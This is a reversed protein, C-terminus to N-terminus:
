FVTILFNEIDKDSILYTYRMGMKEKTAPLSGKKIYNRVSQVTVNLKEATEKVTYYKTEKKM